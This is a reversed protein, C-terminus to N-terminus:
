PGFFRALLAGVEEPADEQLFHGCDPLTTVDAQPLDAKVRAMTDAVDPLVRDRSGYVVRVPIRLAPLRRAIQVFGKRSVGIGADALTRRTEPTRFPEQVAALVEPSLKAPDALGDRLISELGAPSTIQERLGPTACARVFEKVAESFEPYVLTNLLALKTLRGPRDLAWHLGVPGGLDHVALGLQDIGLHALFLDLTRGFFDFSYRIGVPKDSAGFGPLDLAIVRNARALPRMVERWLFSSTPWGHLLLVPPGDGLDRYALRLGDLQATKTTAANM